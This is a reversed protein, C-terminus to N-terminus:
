NEETEEETGSKILEEIGAEDTLEAYFEYYGEDSLSYLVYLLTGVAAEGYVSVDLVVEDGDPDIDFLAPMDVGYMFLIKRVLEFGAQPSLFPRELETFLITNVKQVIASDAVSEVIASETIDESLYSRFDIM